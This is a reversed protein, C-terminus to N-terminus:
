QDLTINYGRINHFLKREILMDKFTEDNDMSLDSIISPLEYGVPEQTFEFHFDVLPAVIYNIENNGEHEEVIMDYIEGSRTGALYDCEDRIYDINTHNNKEDTVIGYSILIKIMHMITDDFEKLDNIHTENIKVDHTNNYEIINDIIKDVRLRWVHNIIGSLKFRVNNLREIRENNANYVQGIFQRAQVM